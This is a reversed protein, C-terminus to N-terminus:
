IYLSFGITFLYRSPFTFLEKIFPHFLVQFQLFM